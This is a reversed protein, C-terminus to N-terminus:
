QKLIVKRMSRHTGAKLEVFYVGAALDRGDDGRGAWTLRHSGVEYTQDAINAVKRGSANFVSISARGPKSLFFELRTSGSFPNPTAPMLMAPTSSAILPVDGVATTSTCPRYIVYFVWDGTVGAPCADIWGGPIAKVLNLSDQCGNGDHVVSPAFIDGANQNLFELTVSFSDQSVVIEGPFPELDYENIVGDTLLPGPLTFIPAGPDPLGKSYIHIGQELSQPAGGFQSGWGIGVRLIELPYHSSPASLIVGAEEGPIFCACTTSGSGTFNQLPPEEPCQASSVGALLAAAALGAVVSQSALVIRMDL